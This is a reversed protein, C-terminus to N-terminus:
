RQERQAQQLQDKVTNIDRVVDDLHDRFKPLDAKVPNLARTIHGKSDRGTEVYQPAANLLRLHEM